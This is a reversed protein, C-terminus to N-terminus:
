SIENHVVYSRVTTPLLYVAQQLSSANLIKEDSIDASDPGIHGVKRTM